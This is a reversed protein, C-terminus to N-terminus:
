LRKQSSLKDNYARISEGFQNVAFIAMSRVSENKFNAKMLRDILVKRGVAELKEVSGSDVLLRRLEERKAPNGEGKMALKQQKRDERGIKALKYEAAIMNHIRSQLREARAERRRTRLGPTTMMEGNKETVTDLNANYKKRDLAQLGNLTTLRRKMLRAKRAYKRRRFGFVASTAKDTYHDKKRQTSDIRWQLYQDKAAHKKDGTKAALKEGRQLLSDARELVYKDLRQSKRLVLSAEADRQAAEKAQAVEKAHLAMDAEPGTGGVDSYAEPMQYPGEEPDYTGGPGELVSFTDDDDVTQDVANNLNDPQGFHEGDDELMDLEADFADKPAEHNRASNPAPQREM